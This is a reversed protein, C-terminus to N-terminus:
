GDAHTEDPVILPADLRIVDDLRAYSHIGVLREGLVGRILVESEILTKANLEAEAAAGIEAGSNADKVLGVAEDHGAVGPQVFHVPIDAEAIMQAVGLWPISTEAMSHSPHLPSAFNHLTVMWLLATVVM